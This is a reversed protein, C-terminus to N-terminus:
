KNKLIQKRLMNLAAVSFRTINMNRDGGYTYRETVTGDKSNVSICVTGVPKDATGGDPGAIGTVAVSYDASFLERAGKAMSEAVETSVAGYKVILEDPVNLQGTKVKNDYAIVSGTYYKSSGPVSTIMRAINGGTCSEATCLTANRETLLRGIVMEMSAEDEAYILDPIISYLNKVERDIENQVSERHKGTGTLRLKIIGDSPLYALGISEPMGAEFGTLTEALKAEATGYTMINKHIIVQTRFRMKLEPLVHRTMLHKMEMPVGPMSVFITGDKEFWMGPATGAANHLVRCNEPVEAQRRNNENLPFNRKLLMKEIMKLVVEDSVLHTEFFDCLVPKTIDDSTPGLGGTILVVDVKGSAEGLAKLIDDRKDPISVMRTILFGLKSIESGIWAANTNITQGILLEDGISIIEARM